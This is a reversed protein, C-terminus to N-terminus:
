SSFKVVGVIWSITIKWRLITLRFNGLVLYGRDFCFLNNFWEFKAGEAQFIRRIWRFFWVWFLIKAGITVCTLQDCPSPPIGHFEIRKRKNKERIFIPIAILKIILCKLDVKRKIWCYQVANVWWCWFCAYIMLGYVIKAWDVLSMFNTEWLEWEQQHGLQQSTM